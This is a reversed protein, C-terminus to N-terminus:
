KYRNFAEKGLLWLYKDIEKITFSELGYYTRFNHIIKTYEEYEKLDEEKFKYFKDRNRFYKLLKNVYSDYIPYVDPRHHSCYKSAFSYFTFCKENNTIKALDGVLSLDGTKLKEDINKHLYHQAVNHIKFINTSYFDNLASCKILINEISQNDKCLVLFLKDLANEQNVYDELENWKQIYENVEDVSPHHSKLIENEKM